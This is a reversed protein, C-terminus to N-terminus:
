FCDAIQRADLAAILAILEPQDPSELTIQM